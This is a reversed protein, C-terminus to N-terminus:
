PGEGLWNVVGSKKDVVDFYVLVHPNIFKFMTVKGSLTVPKEMDYIGGTGHHLALVPVSCLFCLLCVTKMPYEVYIAREAEMRTGAARGRRKSRPHRDEPTGYPAKAFQTRRCFRRPGGM